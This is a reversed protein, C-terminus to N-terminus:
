ALLTRSSLFRKYTECTTGFYFICILPSKDSIGFVHLTRVCVCVCVCVWFAMTTPFWKTYESYICVLPKHRWSSDLWIITLSVVFEHLHRNSKPVFRVSLDEVRTSEHEITELDNVFYVVFMKSPSQRHTTRTIRPSFVQNCDCQSM